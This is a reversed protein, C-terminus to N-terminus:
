TSAPFIMYSYITCRLITAMLDDYFFQEYVGAMAISRTGDNSVVIMGTDFGLARSRTETKSIDFKDEVHEGENNEESIETVLDFGLREALNTPVLLTAKVLSKHTPFIIKFKKGEANYSIDLKLNSQHSLRELVEQLVPLYSTNKFTNGKTVSVVISDSMYSNSHSIKSM